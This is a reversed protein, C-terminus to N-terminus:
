PGPSVDAEDFTELLEYSSAGKGGSKKPFGFFEASGSTAGKGGSKKALGLVSRSDTSFSSAGRGGSKRGLGFSVFFGAALKGKGTM